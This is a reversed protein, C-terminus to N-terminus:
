SSPNSHHNIFLDASLRIRQNGYTILAIVYFDLELNSVRLLTARM